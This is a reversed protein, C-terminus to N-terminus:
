NSHALFASAGLGAGVFNFATRRPRPCVRVRQRVTGDDGVRVPIMVSVARGVPMGMAMSMGAPNQIQVGADQAGVVARSLEIAAGELRQAQKGDIDDGRRAGALRGQKDPGDVFQFPAQTAGHNHPVKGRIIVGRPQAGGPNGDHM